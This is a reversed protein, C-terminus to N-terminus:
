KDISKPFCDIESLYFLRLVSVFGSDMWLLVTKYYILITSEYYLGFDLAILAQLDDRVSLFSGIDGYFFEQLFSM